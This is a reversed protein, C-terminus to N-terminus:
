RPHRPSLLLRSCSKECQKLVLRGASESSSREIKISLSVIAELLSESCNQVSSSTRSIDHVRSVEFAVPGSPIEAAINFVVALDIELNLLGPGYMEM